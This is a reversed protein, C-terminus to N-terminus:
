RRARTWPAMARDSPWATPGGTRTTTILAKRIDAVTLSPYRSRILAVVGAVIASAASTSNMAQYGGANDAAM